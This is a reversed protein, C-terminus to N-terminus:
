GKFSPNSATIYPDLLREPARINRQHTHHINQNALKTPSHDFNHVSHKRIVTKASERM